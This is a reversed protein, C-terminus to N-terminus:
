KQVRALVLKRRSLEVGLLTLGLLVVTMSSDPVSNHPTGGCSYDCQCCGIDWKGWCDLSFGCNNGSSLCNNLYTLGNSDLTCTWTNNSGKQCTGINCSSGGGLLDCYLVSSCSISTFTFTCSSIQQGSNSVPLSCSYNYGSQNSFIQCTNAQVMATVAMLAAFILKKM